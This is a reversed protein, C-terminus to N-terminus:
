NSTEDAPLGVKAISQTGTLVLGKSKKKRTRRVSATIYHAPFYYLMCSETRSSASPQAFLSVSALDVTNSGSALTQTSPTWQLLAASAVTQRLICSTGKKGVRGERSQHLWISEGKHVM